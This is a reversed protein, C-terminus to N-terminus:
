KIINEIYTSWIVLANENDYYKKLVQNIDELNINLFEKMKGVVAKAFKPNNKIFNFNRFIYDFITLSIIIRKFKDYDSFVRIMLSISSIMFKNYQETFEIDENPIIQLQYINSKNNEVDILVQLGPINEIIYKLYMSDILNNNTKINTHIYDYNKNYYNKNALNIQFIKMNDYLGNIIKNYLELKNISKFKYKNNRIIGIINILNERSINIINNNIDTYDNKDIIFSIRSLLNDFFENLIMYGM